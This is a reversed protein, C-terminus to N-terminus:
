ARQHAGESRSVRASRTIATVMASRCQCQLANRFSQDTSSIEMVESSTDGVMTRASRKGLTRMPSARAPSSVIATPHVVDNSGRSSGEVRSARASAPSPAAISTVASRRSPANSATSASSPPMSAGSAPSASSAASTGESAPQPSHLAGRVQQPLSHTLMSVLGVFQPSHPWEQGPVVQEPPDHM